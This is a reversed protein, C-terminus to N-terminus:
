RWPAVTGSFHDKWQRARRRARRRGAEGTLTKRQLFEDVQAARQILNQVRNEGFDRHGLRILDRVEDMAAFKTVAVLVIDEGRRGSRQAAADIRQRVQDYRQKLAQKPEAASTEGRATEM